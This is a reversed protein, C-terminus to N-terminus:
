YVKHKLGLLRRLMLQEKRFDIQVHFVVSNISSNFIFFHTLQIFCYITASTYIWLCSDISLLFSIYSALCIEDWALTWLGKHFHM